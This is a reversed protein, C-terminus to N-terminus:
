RGQVVGVACRFGGGNLRGVPASWGRITSRCFGANYDWSGGRLVRYRGGGPGEPNNSPSKSYYGSDYWDSCWEWVNGHM